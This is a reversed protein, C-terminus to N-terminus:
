NSGANVGCQGRMSGIKVWSPGPEVKDLKDVLVCTAAFKDAPVGLGGLVEALVQAGFGFHDFM